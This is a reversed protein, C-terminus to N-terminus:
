RLDAPLPSGSKDQVFNDFRQLSGENIKEEGSLHLARLLLPRLTAVRQLAWLKGISPLCPSHTPLVIGNKSADISCIMSSIM